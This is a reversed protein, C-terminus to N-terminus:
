KTKHPENFFSLGGKNMLIDAHLNLVRKNIVMAKTQTLYDQFYNTNRHKQYADHNSYIEFFRWHNPKDKLTMAYMVLVNPDEDITQQMEKLVIQSFLTNSTPKVQVEVFNVLLSNADVEALAGGQEALFQPQTAFTKKSTVVDKAMEAYRKFQPSILHQQYATQDQYVELIILTSPNEQQHTSYMALTGIETQVSTTLNDLGISNFREQQSIDTTLEFIHVIPTAHATCTTTFAAAILLSPLKM